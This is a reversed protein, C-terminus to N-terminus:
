QLPYELHKQEAKELLPQFGAQFKESLAKKVSEIKEEMKRKEEAIRRNGAEREEALRREWKRLCVIAPTHHSLTRYCTRPPPLTSPKNRPWVNSRM